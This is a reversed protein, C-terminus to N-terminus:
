PSNDLFDRPGYKPLPPSHPVDDESDCHIFPASEEEEEFNIAEDTEEEELKCLRHFIENALGTLVFLKWHDIAKHTENVWKDYCMSHTLEVYLRVALKDTPQKIEEEMRKAIEEWNPEVRSM